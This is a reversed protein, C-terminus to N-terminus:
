SEFGLLRRTREVPDVALLPGDGTVICTIPAVATLAAELTSSPILAACSADVLVVQASARAADLAGAERGRAAEHVAIGALAFGACRLAGGVFAIRDGNM